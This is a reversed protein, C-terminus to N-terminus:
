SDHSGTDRVVQFLPRPASWHDLVPVLPDVLAKVLVLAVIPALDKKYVSNLRCTDPYGLLSLDFYM